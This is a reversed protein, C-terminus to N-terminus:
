KCNIRCTNIIFGQMLLGWFLDPNMGAMNAKSRRNNGPTMDMQIIDLLQDNNFDAIDVGMGYLATQQYTRQTSVSLVMEMM